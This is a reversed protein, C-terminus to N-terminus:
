RMMQNPLLEQVANACHSAVDAPVGHGLRGRHWVYVIQVHQVFMNNGLTMNGTTCTTVAAAAMGSRLKHNTFISM